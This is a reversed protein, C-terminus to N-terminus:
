AHRVYNRDVPTFTYERKSEKRLVIRENMTHKEYQTVNAQEGDRKKNM